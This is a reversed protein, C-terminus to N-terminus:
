DIKVGRKATYKVNIWAGYRSYRAIVEGLDKVLKDLIEPTYDMELYKGDKDRPHLGGEISVDRVDDIPTPSTPAAVKTPPNYASM